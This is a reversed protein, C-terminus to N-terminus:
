IAAGGPGRQYRQGPWEDTQRYLPGGGAQPPGLEAPDFFYLAPDTAVVRVQHGASSMASFLAPTRVAAVSGTVGLVIRPM